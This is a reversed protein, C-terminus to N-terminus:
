GSRAAGSNSLDTPKQIAQRAEPEYIRGLMWAAALGITGAVAMLILGVGALHSEVGTHLLGWVVVILPLRGPTYTFFAAPLEGVARAFAVAWAAAIAGRSM